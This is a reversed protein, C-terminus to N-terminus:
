GADSAGEKPILVPAGVEIWTARIGPSLCRIRLGIVAAFRRPPADPPLSDLEFVLEREGSWDITVMAYGPVEADEIDRDSVLMGGSLLGIVECRLVAGTADDASLPIALARYGSWDRPPFVM